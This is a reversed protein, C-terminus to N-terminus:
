IARLSSQFLRFTDRLSCECLEIGYRWQMLLANLSCPRMMIDNVPASRANPSCEVLMLSARRPCSLVM